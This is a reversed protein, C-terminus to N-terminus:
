AVIHNVSQDFDAVLLRALELRSEYIVHASMTSSWYSGSYHSQGYYWRFVRWPLVDRFLAGTVQRMPIERVAGDSGRFCLPATSDSEVDYLSGSDKMVVRGSWDRLTSRGAHVWFLGALWLSQRISVCGLGLTLTSASCHMGRKKTSGKEGGSPSARQMVTALLLIRTRQSWLWDVGSTMISAVWESM